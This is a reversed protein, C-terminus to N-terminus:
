QTATREEGWKAEQEAIEAMIADPVCALCGDFATCNCKPYDSPLHQVELHRVTTDDTM